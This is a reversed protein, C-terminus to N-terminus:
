DVSKVEGRNWYANGDVCLIGLRAMLRGIRRLRKKEEPVIIAPNWNMREGGGSFEVVVQM